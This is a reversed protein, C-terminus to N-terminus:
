RTLVLKRTQDSNGVQLRSFYLGSALERGLEDKGDWVVVRSGPMVTEEVLTRVEQGLINFIKLAVPVPERGSITLIM